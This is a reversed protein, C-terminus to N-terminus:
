STKGRCRRRRAVQDSPRAGWCARLVAAPLWLKFQGRGSVRRPKKESTDILDRARIAHAENHRAILSQVHPAVQLAASTSRAKKVQRM